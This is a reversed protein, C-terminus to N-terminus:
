DEDKEVIFPFGSSKLVETLYEDAGDVVFHQFKKGIALGVTRGRYELLRLKPSAKSTGIAFVSSVAVSDWGAEIMDLAEQVTPYKNMMMDAFGDNFMVNQSIPVFGRDASNYYLNRTALGQVQQRNTDRVIYFAQGKSTNAALRNPQRKFNLYGVKFKRFNLDPHDLEVTISNMGDMPNPWKYCTAVLKSGRSAIEAVYVPEGEYTIVSGNLRMRAQEITDYILM